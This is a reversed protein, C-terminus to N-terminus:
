GRESTEGVAASVPSPVPAEPQPDRRDRLVRAPVGGVVAFPPVPKTVVAGAAVVSGGGLDDLVIAGAGIWVDRGIALMRPTGEQLRMPVDTRTMGHAEGGSLLMVFGSCLFDDGIDAWGVWTGPGFYGHNGVRTRPSRLVAMWNVVLEEGCGALTRQYWARRLYIGFTGPVPALFESVGLYSFIRTWYLLFLPLLLLTAVATAARKLARRLSCDTGPADSM